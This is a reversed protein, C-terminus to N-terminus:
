CVKKREKVYITHYKKRFKQLKVGDYILMGIYYIGVIPVVISAVKLLIKM